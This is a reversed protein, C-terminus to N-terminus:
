APNAKVATVTEIRQVPEGLPHGRFAINPMNILGIDDRDFEESWEEIVTVVALDAGWIWEGGDVRRGGLSISYDGPRLLRAPVKVNLEFPGERLMEPGDHATFLRTGDCSLSFAFRFNPVIFSSVGRIQFFLEEGPNATNRAVIPKGNLQIREFRLGKLPGGM